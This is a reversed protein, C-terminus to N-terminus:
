DFYEIERKVISIYGESISKKKVWNNHNDFTYKYEREIPSYGDYTTIESVTNGLKDYKYTIVGDKFKEKVLIDDKYYKESFFRYSWDGNYIKESIISDSEYDYLYITKQTTDNDLYYYESYEIKKILNGKDNYHYEYRLEKSLDDWTYNIEKLLNIQNYTYIHKEKARNKDKKDISIEILYDNKYSYRETASDGYFNYSKKILKGKKNFLYEWSSKTDSYVEEYGTKPTGLQNEKISKVKGNLNMIEWDTKPEQNTNCRIFVLAILLIYILHKM